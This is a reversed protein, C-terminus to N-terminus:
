IAPKKLFKRIFDRFALMEFHCAGDIIKMRLDLMEFCLCKITDTTFDTCTLGCQAACVVVHVNVDLGCHAACVVVQVHLGCHAARM